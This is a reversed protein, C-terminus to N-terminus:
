RTRITSTSNPRYTRRPARWAAASGAIELQDFGLYEPWFFLLTNHKGVRALLLFSRRPRRRYRRSRRHRARDGAPVLDASYDGAAVEPRAAQPEVQRALLALPLQAAGGRGLRGHRVAARRAADPRGRGRRSAEWPRDHLQRGQESPLGDSSAARGQHLGVLLPRQGRRTHGSVCRTVLVVDDTRRKAGESGRM